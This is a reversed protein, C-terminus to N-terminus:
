QHHWYRLYTEHRTPNKYLFKGNNDYHYEFQRYHEVVWYGNKTPSLLAPQEKKSGVKELVYEIRASSSSPKAVSPVVKDFPVVQKGLWLSAFLIIMTWLTGAVTQIFSSQLWKM